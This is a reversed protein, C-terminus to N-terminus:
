VSGKTESLVILSLLSFNVQVFTYMQLLGKCRIWKNADKICYISLFLSKWPCSWKDWFLNNVYRLNIMRLLNRNRRQKYQSEAKVSNQV